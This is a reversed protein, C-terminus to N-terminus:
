CPETPIKIVFIAGENGNSCSVKGNLSDEVILKLIYLGLGTGHPKQKTTFYPDFIKKFNKSDIGGGNDEISIFLHDNLSYTDIIIRGQGTNLLNSKSAYIANNLIILISQLLESKYSSVKFNISKKYFIEINEQESAVLLQKSQEIIDIIYFQDKVKSKSFFETFDSITNSLYETTDEIKNLYNNLKQSDLKGKHYDMDMGLVIGNIASLPQRWQHSILSIMEGMSALKSQRVLFNEQKEREIHVVGLHYILMFISFYVFPIWLYGISIYVGHIYSNLLWLTSSIAVTFFLGIIYLYWKYSFFLIIIISLIFSIFINMQKYEKPQVLFADSLINDIVSAHIMNNSVKEGSPITFVPNLGVVSSGLIVIKGRIEDIPVEGDLLEIASFVRPKKKLFKVLVTDHERDIELDEDISLLTALALSPFIQENFNFFLPIRRFVGDNDTWANLFGFNEIGNQITEHNCLMASADNETKIESFINNKYSIDKCYSATNMSNRFYTAITAGSRDIARFLLKDNNKLEEPFACFEVELDFKNKYFDQIYSPSFRDEEPFMINVGIASPNLENLMNILQADIIRPWPWQGLQGISKDDIDIIVSYFSDDHNEVSNSFITIFDYFEYDFKKIHDSAYFYLHLLLSLAVLGINKFIRSM